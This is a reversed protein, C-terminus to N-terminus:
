GAPTGGAGSLRERVHPDDRWAPMKAMFAITDHEADARSLGPKQRLQWGVMKEFREHFPQLEGSPTVCYQCYRGSEIPMSCSECPHQNTTM